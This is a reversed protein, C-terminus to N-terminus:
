FPCCLTYPNKKMEVMKANDTPVGTATNIEAGLIDEITLMKIAPKTTETQLIAQIQTAFNETEEPTDPKIIVVEDECSGNIGMDKLLSNLHKMRLENNSLQIM